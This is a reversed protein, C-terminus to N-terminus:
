MYEILNHEDLLEKFERITAIALRMPTPDKLLNEPKIYGEMLDYLFESTAVPKADDRVKM